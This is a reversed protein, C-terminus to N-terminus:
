LSAPECSLSLRDKFRDLDCLVLCYGHGYRAAASALDAFDEHLRLRNALGTLADRRSEESLRRNADRLERERERLRAYLVSQERRLVTARAILTAGVVSVGLSLAVEDGTLADGAISAVQFGALAVFTLAPLVAGRRRSVQEADEVVTMPGAAWAGVGLAVPNPASPAPGVRHNRRHWATL